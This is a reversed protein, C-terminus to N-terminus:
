SVTLLKEFSYRIVPHTDPEEGFGAIFNACFNLINTGVEDNEERHMAYLVIKFFCEMFNDFNMQFTCLKNAIKKVTVPDENLVFFFGQSALVM